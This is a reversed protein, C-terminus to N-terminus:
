AQGCRTIAKARYLERFLASAEDNRRQTMWEDAEELYVDIEDPTALQLLNERLQEPSETV